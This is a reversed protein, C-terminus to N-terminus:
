NNWQPINDMIRMKTTKNCFYQIDNMSSRICYVSSIPIWEFTIILLFRSGLLELFSINSFVSYHCDKKLALDCDFSSAQEFRLIVSPTKKKKKNWRSNTITFKIFTQKKYKSYSWNFLNFIWKNGKSNRYKIKMTFVLM